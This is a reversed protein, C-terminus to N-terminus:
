GHVLHSDRLHSGTLDIHPLVLFVVLLILLLHVVDGVVVHRFPHLNTFRFRRLLHLLHAGLILLERLLCQILLLGVSVELLVDIAGNLQVQTQPVRQDEQGAEEILDVLDLVGLMGIYSMIIIVYM